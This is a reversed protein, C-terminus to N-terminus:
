NTAPSHFAQSSRERALAVEAPWYSPDMQLAKQFLSQARALHDKEVEIKGRYYYISAHPNAKNLDRELQAIREQADERRGLVNEALSAYYLSMLQNSSSEEVTKAWAAKADVEKGQAKLATGLWYLQESEQPKEPKGIGLNPPYALAEEFSQQAQRFNGAALRARGQEINAEVYIDRMNGGLEWPHFTHTKLMDLAKDYQGQEMLLLTYRARSTDQGLINAPAAAWLQERKAVAGQQAYIEDLDVYLHHDLPALQIARQYEEAAQDLNRQVRWAYVGRDRDLVAFRLGAAQAKKWM